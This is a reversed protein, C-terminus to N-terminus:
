GLCSVAEGVLLKVKEDQGFDLLPTHSKQSAASLIRFDASRGTSESASSFISGDLRPLRPDGMNLDGTPPAKSPLLTPVETNDGTFHLVLLRNASPCNEIAIEVGM